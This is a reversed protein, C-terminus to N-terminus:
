LESVGEREAIGIIFEAVRKSSNADQYENTLDKVKKREEILIDNGIAVNKIFSCFEDSNYIKEGGAFVL